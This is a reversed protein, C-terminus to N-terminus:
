NLLINKKPNYQMESLLSYISMEMILKETKLYNEFVSLFGKFFDKAQGYANNMKEKVWEVGQQVGSVVSEWTEGVAKEVRKWQKGLWDIVQQVGAFIKAALMLAQAYITEGMKLIANFIFAIVTVIGEGLAKIGNWIVEVGKEIAVGIKELASKVGEIIRENLEKIEKVTAVGLQYLFNLLKQGLEVTTKIIQQGIYIACIVPGVVIVFTIEGITILFQKVNEGFIQGAKYGASVAGGAGGAISLGLQSVMKAITNRGVKGDVNLGNDKQFKEVASKTENGYDSDAGFKPLEYGNSMLATQIQKVSEGKSGLKLIADGSQVQELSQESIVGMLEHIRSVESLFQKKM